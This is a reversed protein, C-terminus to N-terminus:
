VRKFHPLLGKSPYSLQYLMARFLRPDGTRARTWAGLGSSMMLVNDAPYYSHDHTQIHVIVKNQLLWQIQGGDVPNRALRDIKWCVIGQAEGKQIRAIMESFVPRGPM